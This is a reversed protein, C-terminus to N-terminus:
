VFLLLSLVLCLIVNNGAYHLKSSDSRKNKDLDACQEKYFGRNRGKSDKALLCIQYNKVKGGLDKKVNMEISRQFYPLTQQFVITKPDGKDRVLAYTDAIDENKLVRWKVKTFIKNKDRFVFLLM